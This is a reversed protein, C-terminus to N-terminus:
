KKGAIYERFLQAYDQCFPDTGVLKLYIETGKIDLIFAPKDSKPPIALIEGNKARGVKYDPHQKKLEVAYKQLNHALDQTHGFYLEKTTLLKYPMKRDKLDREIGFVPNLQPQAAPQKPKPPPLPPM